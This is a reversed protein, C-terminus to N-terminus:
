EDLREEAKALERNVYREWHRFLFLCLVINGTVVAILHFDNM